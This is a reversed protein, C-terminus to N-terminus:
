LKNNSSKQMPRHLNGKKLSKGRLTQRTTKMGDPQEFFTLHLSTFFTLTRLTNVYM